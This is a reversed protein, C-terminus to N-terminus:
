GKFNFKKGKLANFSARQPATLAASIKADRQNVLKQLTPAARQMAAAFESNAQRSLREAEAKDKPKKDKYKAFAGQAIAQQRQALQKSGAEFAQRAKTLQAQSMGIRKAVVPDIVAPWGAAQLTIERLRKVQAASLETFVNRKLTKMFEMLRSSDAQPQRKQQLERQYAELTRRHKDAHVNMKKRQPEGIGLEKQVSKSQLLAVNAAHYDFPDVKQAVASATWALCLLLTVPIRPM